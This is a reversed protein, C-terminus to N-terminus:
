KTSPINSLCQCIQKATSPHSKKRSLSEFEALLSMIVQDLDEFEGFNDRLYKIAFVLQLGVQQKNKYQNFCHFLRLVVALCLDRCIAQGNCAKISVMTLHSKVTGQNLIQTEILLESRSLSSEAPLLYLKKRLSEITKLAIMFQQQKLLWITTNAAQKVLRIDLQHSQLACFTNFFVKEENNYLKDDVIVGQLVNVPYATAIKRYKRM